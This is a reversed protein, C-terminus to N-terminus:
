QQSKLKKIGLGEDKKPIPFKRKDGVEAHHEDTKIPPHAMANMALLKEKNEMEEKEMEKKKLHKQLGFMKLVKERLMDYLQENEATPIPKPPVNLETLFLNLKKNMRGSIPLPVHMLTSRLYAIKENKKFNAATQKKGESIKQLAEEEENNDEDDKMDLKMITELNKQEKEEKRIINELKRLEEIIKKEEENKEKSRMIFKELHYKRQKEYNADFSYHFLPNNVDERINAIKKTVQYFREKLDEMSRNYKLDYQDYIVFFRLDFKECLDWLYDTEERGWALDLEKIYKEYEDNTYKILDVRVNFKMYPTVKDKDEKPVWHHIQPHSKDDGFILPTFVWETKDTKEKNENKQIAEMSMFPQIPFSSGDTLSLIERSVTEPKKKPEGDKKSKKKKNYDSVYTSLTLIDKLDESM